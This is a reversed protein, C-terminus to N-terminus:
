LNSLREALEWDYHVQKRRKKTEKIRDIDTQAYGHIGMVKKEGICRRPNNFEDLRYMQTEPREAEMFTDINDRLAKLAPKRIFQVGGYGVDQKFWDFTYYQVWWIRPDTVFMKDPKLNSNVIVDADVRVFDEDVSYYIQKLKSALSSNDQILRVDFGNRKLAWQALETTPEGISTLVAIM